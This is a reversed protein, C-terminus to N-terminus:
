PKKVASILLTIWAAIMLLGGIPTIMAFVKIGSLVYCYLSGSFLVTGFFMLWGSVSLYTNALGYQSLIFVLILGIAHYFQYRAATEFTDILKVDQLHKELGHAGFAGFLVSLAALTAGLLLFKKFEPM